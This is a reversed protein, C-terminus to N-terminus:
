RLYRVWREEKEYGFNELQTFSIIANKISKLLNEEETQNLVGMENKNLTYSGDEKNYRFVEKRDIKLLIFSATELLFISDNSNEIQEVIQNVLNIWTNQPFELQKEM